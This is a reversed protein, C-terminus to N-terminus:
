AMEFKNRVAEADRRLLTERMKKVQELEHYRSLCELIHNLSYEGIQGIGALEDKRLSVLQELTVIHHPSAELMNIIRLPLGLFELDTLSDGRRVGQAIARRAADPIVPAVM